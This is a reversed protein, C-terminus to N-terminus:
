KAAKSQAEKKALDLWIQAQHDASLRDHARATAKRRLDALTEERACVLEALIKGLACADGEPFLYGCDDILEPIAGSRSGVVIKGCAMAEPLVRGYQEKWKPTSVSPLVVFDAANMYLPMEAHAADFFVVRDTLGLSEVQQKIEQIYPTQYDSFRDVLFQWRLQKIGALATLLIHLGKEPILRGFYAITKERLGLRARTEAIQESSRPYFLTRDLGLPIQTARGSFGLEQMVRTGDRSLTFVHSLQRRAIRRLWGTILPGVVLGPKLKAFGLAMDRPWDPKLNEATMAWVRPPDYQQRRAIGLAQRVLMTAPDSDLLIHTPHWSAIIAALGSMRQLRLHKGVMELMVVEFPEGSVSPTTKWGGGVPLRRPL